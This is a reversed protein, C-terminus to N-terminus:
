RDEDRLKRRKVRPEADQEKRTNAAFSQLMDKRQEFGRLASYKLIRESGQWHRLRRKLRVYKKNIIVLKNIDGVRKRRGATKSYRLFLRAELQDLKEQLFEVRSATESYLAAWWAYLEPQRLIERDLNHKNIHLEAILDAKQVEKPYLQIVVPAHKM